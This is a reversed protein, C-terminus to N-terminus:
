TARPVPLRKPPPRTISTFASSGKGPAILKIEYDSKAEKLVITELTAASEVLMVAGAARQVQPAAESSSSDGQWTKPLYKTWGKRKAIAIIRSKLTSMGVNKDGARGMAHVAAQVDGPKLIPFSKGKGAFDAEDANDRESKAIFREYLPLETYLGAKKYSESMAAYQDDDDAQEDYSTCPTVSVANDTDVNDSTKGGVSSLEYPAKKLKGDASYIVDGTEGDGTHDVYSAWTGTGRHADSVADSLRRRVDSHSVDAAEQLKTAVALMGARLVM